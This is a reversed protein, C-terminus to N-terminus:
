NSFIKFKEHRGNWWVNRFCVVIVPSSGAVGPMVFWNEVLQSVNRGLFPNSGNVCPKEFRHEVGSSDLIIFISM